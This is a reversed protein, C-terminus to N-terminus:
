EGLVMGKRSRFSGRGPYQDNIEPEMKKYDDYNQDTRLKHSAYYFAEEVSIEGDKLFNFSPPKGLEFIGSKFGDADGTRIGEFWVYSFLPGNITSAYGTRFKSSGAIVIRGPNPIDSRMLIFTPFNYIIKDAFGGSFCADIIVCTKEASLDYILEGLEYDYLLNDWLFIASSELVKGGTFEDNQNGYGHGFLWIFVESDVYNNSEEIVHNIIKELNDRTAGGYSFDYEHERQQLTELPKGYGNHYRIWGDDFLIFINSTSYGFNEVFYSAMEEALNLGGNGLKSENDTPYNAAAVFIAWKHTDSELTEPNDVYLNLEYIESYDIGDWSRIRIKYSSDQYQYTVWDFSWNTIGKAINWDSNNVMFEVKELTFDGDLDSATGYIKILGSVTMGSSPYIVEILPINNGNGNEELCGSFYPLIILILIIMILSRKDM